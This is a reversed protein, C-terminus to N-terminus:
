WRSLDFRKQLIHQVIENKLNIAGTSILMIQFFTKNTKINFLFLHKVNELWDVVDFRYNLKFGKIRKRCGHCNDSM